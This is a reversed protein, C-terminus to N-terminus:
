VGLATKAAQFTAFAQAKRLVYGDKAAQLDALTVQKETNDAMTWTMSGQGQSLLDFYDIAGQINERDEPRSVDFGNLPANITADRQSKLVNIAIDRSEKPTPEPPVQPRWNRYFDVVEQRQETSMDKNWHGINHSEVYQATEDTVLLWAYNFSLQPKETLSYDDISGGNKRDEWTINM